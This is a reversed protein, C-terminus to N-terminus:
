FGKMEKMRNSVKDVFEGYYFGIGMKNKWFCYKRKLLGERMYSLFVCINVFMRDFLKCFMFSVIM